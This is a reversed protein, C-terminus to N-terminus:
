RFYSQRIQEQSSTFRSSWILVGEPPVVCSVETTCAKLELVPLSTPDKSNFVQRTQLTLKLVAPAVFGTKFFFIVFCGFYKGTAGAMLSCCGCGQAVGHSHTEVFATLLLVETLRPRVPVAAAKAFVDPGCPVHDSFHQYTICWPAM